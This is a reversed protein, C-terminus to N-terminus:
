PPTSTPKLDKREFNGLSRRLANVPKSTQVEVLLVCWGCNHSHYLCRLVASHGPGWRCRRADVLGALTAVGQLLSANKVNDTTRTYLFSLYVSPYISLSSSLHVSEYIFLYSSKLDRSISIYHDESVSQSRSIYIYIHICATVLGLHQQFGSAQM